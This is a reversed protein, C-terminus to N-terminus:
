SSGTFMRHNTFYITAIRTRPFWMCSNDRSHVTLVHTDASRQTCSMRVVVWRDKCHVCVCVRACMDSTHGKSLLDTGLSRLLRGILTNLLTWVFRSAVLGMCLSLPSTPKPGPLLERMHTHTHTSVQSPSSPHQCAQTVCVSVCVDTMQLCTQCELILVCASREQQM